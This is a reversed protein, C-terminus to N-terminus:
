EGAIANWCVNRFQAYSTSEPAWDWGSGGHFTSYIFRDVNPPGETDQWIIGDQDLALQGDAWARIRGDAQGVASNATVEMELTFWRGIPATFDDFAYDDGYPLNQSRDAAYSYIVIRATGDGSGRWAFRATFGAPDLQGGSSATGGGLGFGLKGTEKTRGWDFGPELYVEQRMTYTRTPLLDGRVVVRASGESSPVFQQRLVAGGSPQQVELHKADSVSNIRTGTWTRWDDDTVGGFDIQDAGLDLCGSGIAVGRDGSLSSWSVLAIIPVAFALAIGAKLLTSAAIHSSRWRM